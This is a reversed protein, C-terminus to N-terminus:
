LLYLTVWVLTLLTVQLVLLELLELLVQPLVQEQAELVVATPLAFCIKLVV